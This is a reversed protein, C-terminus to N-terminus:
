NELYQALEGHVDKYLDEWVVLGIEAFDGYLCNVCTQVLQKMYDPNELVAEYDVQGRSVIWDKFFELEEDKLGAYHQDIALDVELTDLNSRVDCYIEVWHKIDIPEMTSGLVEKLENTYLLYNDTEDDKVLQPIHKIVQWFGAKSLM